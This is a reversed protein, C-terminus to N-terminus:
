FSVCSLMFVCLGDDRFFESTGKMLQRESVAFYWRGREEKM